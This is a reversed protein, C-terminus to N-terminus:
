LLWVSSLCVRSVLSSDKLFSSLVLSIELSPLAVFFGRKLAFVSYQVLAEKDCEQFTEFLIQRWTNISAVNPSLPKLPRHGSDFLFHATKIFATM